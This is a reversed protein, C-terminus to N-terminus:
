SKGYRLETFTPKKEHNDVISDNKVTSQSTEPINLSRRLLDNQNRLERILDDQREIMDPIRFYWLIISRCLLILLILVGLPLSVVSFM